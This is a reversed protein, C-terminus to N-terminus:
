YINSFRSQLLQFLTITQKETNEMMNVDDQNYITYYEGLNRILLMLKKEDDITFTRYITYNENENFICICGVSEYIIIKITDYDYWKKLDENSYNKLISSINDKESYSTNVYLLRYPNCRNKTLYSACTKIDFDNM